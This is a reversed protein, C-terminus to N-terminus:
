SVRGAALPVFRIPGMSETQFGDGIRKIRILEQAGHRPGVPLVMVGGDALQSLLTEPIEAAAATVLIRQFPAQEPWGRNGDNIWATINTLGLQKFRKEAEHLLPRHREITYVRRCLRSLIATQYGSGTGVELMKMRDGLEIAQTMRGVVAPQSLTQGQGIPLAVDEYAKDRFPTPVFVERPTREMAALVRTDTVGARRLAMVMRIKRSEGTM